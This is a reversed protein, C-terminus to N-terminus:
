KFEDDWELDRNNFEFVTSKELMASLKELMGEIKNDENEASVKVIIDREINSLSENDSSIHIGSQFLNKIWDLIKQMVTRHDLADKLDESCQPFYEVSVHPNENTLSGEKGFLFECNLKLLNCGEDKQVVSYHISVGSQANNEFRFVTDHEVPLSHRLVGDLGLVVEPLSKETLSNLLKYIHTNEFNDANDIWGKQCLSDLVQYIGKDKKIFLPVENITFNINENCLAENDHPHFIGSITEVTLPYSIVNM